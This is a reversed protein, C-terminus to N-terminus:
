LGNLSIDHDNINIEQERRVDVEPMLYLYLLLWVLASDQEEM